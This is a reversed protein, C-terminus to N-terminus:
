RIVIQGQPIDFLDYLGPETAHDSCPMAFGEGIVSFSIQDVPDNASTGNDKLRSSVPVGALDVKEGTELNTFSGSTIVGSVWAENGVVSVCDIVAHFGGGGVAQSFRDNYQGSATGDAYLMAKINLDADCGPQLGFGICADPSGVSVQHVIPSGALAATSILMAMLVALSIGIGFRSRMMCFMNM